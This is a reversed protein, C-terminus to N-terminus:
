VQLKQVDVQSVAIYSGGVGAGPSPGTRYRTEEKIDTVDFGRYVIGTIKVEMGLGIAGIGSQNVLFLEGVAPLDPNSSISFTSPVTVEKYELDKGPVVERIADLHVDEIETGTESM